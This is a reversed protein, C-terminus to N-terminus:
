LHDDTIVKEDLGLKARASLIDNLQDDRYKDMRILESSSLRSVPRDDVRSFLEEENNRSSSSPSKHNQKHTIRGEPFEPFYEGEM